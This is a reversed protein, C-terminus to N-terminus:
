KAKRLQEVRDLKEDIRIALKLAEVNSPKMALSHKALISRLAAARRSRNTANAEV